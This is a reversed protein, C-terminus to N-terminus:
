PRDTEGSITAWCQDCYRTFLPKGAGCFRCRPALWDRVLRAVDLIPNATIAMSGIGGSRTPSTMGPATDFRSGSVGVASDLLTTGPRIGGREGISRDLEASRWGFSTIV